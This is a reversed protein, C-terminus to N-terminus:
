MGRRDPAAGPDARWGPGRGALSAAVFALGGAVGLGCAAGGPSASAVRVYGNGTNYTEIGPYLGFGAAALVLVIGIVLFAKSM